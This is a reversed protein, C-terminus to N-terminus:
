KNEMNINKNKNKELMVRPIMSGIALPTSVTFLATDLAAEGARRKKSQEKDGFAYVTGGIVPASVGAVISLPDYLKKRRVIASGRNTMAELERPSGYTWKSKVYKKGNIKQIIPNDIEKRLSANLQKKWVNGVNKGTQVTGGILGKGKVNKSLEYLNDATNGISTRVGRRLMQAPNGGTITQSKPLNRQKGSHLLPDRYKRLHNLAGKGSKHAKIATQIFGRLSAIKIHDIPM